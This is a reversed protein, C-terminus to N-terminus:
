KAFQTLSLAGNFIIWGANEPPNEMAVFREPLASMFFGGAGRTVEEKGADV